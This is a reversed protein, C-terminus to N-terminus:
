ADDVDVVMTRRWYVNANFEPAAPDDAPAAGAAAADAEEEGERPQSGLAMGGAVLARLEAVAEAADPDADLDGGLVVADDHMDAMPDAGGGAGGGPADGESSDDSGSSDAGGRFAPPLKGAAADLGGGGAAAWAAAGGGGEEEDEEDEESYVGYRQYVEASFPAGELGYGAGAAGYGRGPDLDGPGHAGPRGCRWAFVSELKNRPELRDAAYAAWGAHVSLFERAAPSREALRLLRNAMQTVHGCYGARLPPRGAGRPDDPNPAPTVLEPADVLWEVLRAEKLLFARLAESGPEFATVLAAVCGHLANNFPYALFLAMARQVAPTAIVAAEAGADGTRLLAALLEVAKLRLQGVPPAVLGYSTRLEGAGGAELLDALRDAAASVCRIAEARLREHVESAPPPADPPLTVNPSHVGPLGPEGPPPPDLLAICVNLAHTAARGEHPALARDVLRGMFEPSALRHTLPSGASRAVAALVEAANAQAEAPGGPGLADALREPLDTGALWQMAAPAHPGRPEDAGVLRALAEAVSTTDLHAVLAPLLAPRRRLYAQVDACRRLALAGVVRAFYGALMPPLPRPRALLAFLADMLEESELLTNFVGEVECCLVECAAFPFKYQRRADAGPPADEVLLAVLAAVTEARKLFGTLRANLSKCEQILEDEDLLEELTFDEKDLVADVPSATNLGGVQPAPLPLRAADAPPTPPHPPPRAPPRPRPPARRPRNHLCADRRPRRRPLGSAGEL